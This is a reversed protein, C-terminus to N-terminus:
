CPGSSTLSLEYVVGNEEDVILLGMFSVGCYSSSGDTFGFSVGPMESLEKLIVQGLGARRAEKLADTEDSSAFLDQAAQLQLTGWGIMDGFSIDKSPLNVHFREEELYEKETLGDSNAALKLIIAEAKGPAVNQINIAWSMDALIDIKRRIEKARAEGTLTRHYSHTRVSPTAQAAEANGVQIHVFIGLALCIAIRMVASM